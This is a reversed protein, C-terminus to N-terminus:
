AELAAVRAELKAIAELLTDTEEVDDAAVPAYGTMVINTGSPSWLDGEETVLAIKATYRNGLSSLNETVVARGVFGNFGSM